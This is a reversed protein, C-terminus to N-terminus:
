YVRRAYSGEPRPRVVMASSLSQSSAGYSRALPEESRVKKSERKGGRKALTCQASDALLLTIFKQVTRLSSAVRNKVRLICEPRQTCCGGGEAVKTASKKREM